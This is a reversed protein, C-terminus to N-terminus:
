DAFAEEYLQALDASWRDSFGCLMVQGDNAAVLYRGGEQLDISGLLVPLERDTGRVSVLDTAEGTYFKRPVLTAEGETVSEVVGDVALGAGALTQADPVMCRGAAETVTLRTVSQQPTESPRATDPTPEQDGDRGVLAYVLVGVIVLLVIAGVAWTFASRNRTGTERTEDTVQDDPVHVRHWTPARIM